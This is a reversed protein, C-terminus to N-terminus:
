RAHFDVVVPKQANLVTKDFDDRDQINIVELQSEKMSMGRIVALRVVPLRYVHGCSHLFFHRWGSTRFFACSLAPAMRRVSPWCAMM